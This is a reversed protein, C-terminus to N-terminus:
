PRCSLPTFLTRYDTRYDGPAPGSFLAEFLAKDLPVVGCPEGSALDIM